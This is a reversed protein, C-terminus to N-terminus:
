EVAELVDADIELAAGQGLMSVQLVLRAAGNDRSVVTGETGMLPGRAVRCHAGVSAFPYPDLVGGARIVRHLATIEEVFRAQDRVELVQAVRDTLLAKHRAEQDGCFFVYGNFLPMMGRRKRGGSFTVREIMPLFYAIGRAALDGAFAKEFRSKTRAVWWPGALGAPGEGAEPYIM